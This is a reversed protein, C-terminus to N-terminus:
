EKFRGGKEVYTMKPILITKMIRIKEIWTLKTTKLERLKKDIRNLIEEYNKKLAEDQNNKYNIGLIKITGTAYKEYPTNRLKKAAQIGIPLIETKSENIQQGNAKKLTEYEKFIDELSTIGRITYTTDDVYQDMKHHLKGIKIGTIEKNTETSRAIIEGTIAYLSMSLPCGQRIGPTTWITDTDKGNLEIKSIANNYLEKIIHTMKQNIAMREM